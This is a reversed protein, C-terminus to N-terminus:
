KDKAFAATAILRFEEALAIDPSSVMKGDPVDNSPLSETL